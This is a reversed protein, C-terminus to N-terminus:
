CCFRYDKRFSYDAFARIIVWTHHHSFCVREADTSPIHLRCGEYTSIDERIKPTVGTSPATAIVCLMSNVTKNAEAETKSIKQIQRTCRCRCHCRCFITRKSQNPELVIFVPEREFFKFEACSAQIDPYKCSM